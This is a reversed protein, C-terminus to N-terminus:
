KKLAEQKSKNITILRSIARKIEKTKSTSKNAAVAAKALELRLDQLKKKIDELSMKHIDKSKLVAM